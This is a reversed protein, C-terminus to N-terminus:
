LLPSGLRLIHLRLFVAFRRVQLIDKSSEAVRVPSVGCLNIKILRLGRHQFHKRRLDGEVFHCLKSINISCRVLVHGKSETTHHFSGM